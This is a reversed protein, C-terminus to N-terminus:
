PIDGVEHHCPPVDADGVDGEPGHADHPGSAHHSLDDAHGIRDHLFVLAQRLVNVGIM